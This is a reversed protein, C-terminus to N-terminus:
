CDHIVIQESDELEIQTDTTEEISSQDSPLYASTFRRNNATKKRQCLKPMNEACFDETEELTSMLKINNTNPYALACLGAIVSLSGFVTQMFWPYKDQVMIAFPSLIAGIRASASGLSLGTGRLITPFLETTIVYVLKYNMAAAFKGMMALVVSTVTFGQLRFLMSTLCSIGTFCFSCALLNSKSFKKVAFITGICAFVDMFSNIVGNIYPNGALNGINLVLGYFVMSAVFWSLMVNLTIIRVHVPKFLDLTSYKNQKKSELRKLRELELVCKWKEKKLHTGKSKCYRKVVKKASKEQGISLLWRPSESIFFHSPVYLISIVGSYILIHRWHRLFYSAISTSVDGLTGIMSVFLLMEQRRGKSSIESVYTYAVIYRTLSTSAFLVYMVMYTNYSPAFATALSLLTALIAGGLMSSKRGFWDAVLGIMISGLLFGLFTASNALTKLITRDCVLDWETTISETYVNRDYDYRNCEKVASSVSINGTCLETMNTTNCSTGNLIYQNCSNYEKSSTKPILKTTIDKTLHFQNSINKVSFSCRFEPTASLYVPMTTVTCSGFILISVALASAIQYRSMGGMEDLYEDFEMSADESKNKQKKDKIINLTAEEM